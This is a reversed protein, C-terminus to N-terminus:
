LFCQQHSLGAHLPLETGVKYSWEINLLEDKELTIDGQPLRLTQREKSKFYAEHRGTGDVLHAGLKRKAAYIGV